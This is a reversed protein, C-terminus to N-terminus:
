DSVLVLEHSDFPRGDGPRNKTGGGENVTVVVFTQVDLLAFKALSIFTQVTSSWRLVFPSFCRNLPALYWNLASRIGTQHGTVVLPTALSHARATWRIIPVLTSSGGFGVFPPRSAWVHM